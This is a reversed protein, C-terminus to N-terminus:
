ILSLIALISLNMLILLIVFDSALNMLIALDLLIILDMLITKPSNTEPCNLGRVSM